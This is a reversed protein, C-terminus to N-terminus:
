SEFGSLGLGLGCVGTKHERTSDFMSVGLNLPSIKPWPSQHFCLRCHSLHLKPWPSQRHILWQNQNHHDQLGTTSTRTITTRLIPLQDASSTYSKEFKLKIMYILTTQSCKKFKYNVQISQSLINMGSSTHEEVM